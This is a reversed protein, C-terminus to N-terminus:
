VYLSATSPVLGVDEKKIKVFVGCVLICLCIM